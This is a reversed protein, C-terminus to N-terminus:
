RKYLFRLREFFSRFHVVTKAYEAALQEDYQRKTILYAAAETKWSEGDSPNKDLYWPVLADFDRRGDLFQRYFLNRLEPNLDLQEQTRDYALVLAEELGRLGADGTETSVRYISRLVGAEGPITEDGIPGGLIHVRDHDMGSVERWPWLYQYRSGAVTLDDHDMFIIRIQWRGNNWVSKLGANRLVFSEGDSFGRVALLTGWCQGIQRMVSVYNEDARRRNAPVLFADRIYQPYNVYGQPPVIVEGLIEELVSDALWRVDRLTYGTGLGVRFYEEPGSDSLYLDLRDLRFSSSGFIIAQQPLAQGIFQLTTGLEGTYSARAVGTDRPFTEICAKMAVRTEDFGEGFRDLETLYDLIHTEGGAAPVTVVSSNSVGRSCPSESGHVLRFIRSFIGGATTERQALWGLSGGYLRHSVPAEKGNRNRIVDLLRHGRRGARKIEIEFDSGPPKIVVVASTLPYEVLANLESGCSESVWYIRRDSCLMGLIHKEYDPAEIPQEAWRTAQAGGFRSSMDEVGRTVQLQGVIERYVEEPTFVYRALALKSVDRAVRFFYEWDTRDCEGYRISQHVRNLRSLRSALEGVFCRLDRTTYGEALVSAAMPVEFGAEPKLGLAVLILDFEEVGTNTLRLLQNELLLIALRRDAWSEGLRGKAVALLGHAVDRDYHRQRIASTILDAACSAAGFEAQTWTLLADMNPLEAMM